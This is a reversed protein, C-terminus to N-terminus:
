LGLGKRQKNRVENFDITKSKPMNGIGEVMEQVQKPMPAPKEEPLEIDDWGRQNLWTVADRPTGEAYKIKKVKALCEARIKEDLKQWKEFAPFKKRKVMSHINKNWRAPYAKWFIEFEETYETM